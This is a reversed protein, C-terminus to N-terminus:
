GYVIVKEVDISAIHAVENGIVEYKNINELNESLVLNTIDIYINEVEFENNNINVDIEVVFDNFGKDSLEKQIKLKLAECKSRNINQILATNVSNDIVYDEIKLNLIPSIIMIVSLIGFISKCFANTKGDPYVLDFLVGLFVVGILGLLWSSM